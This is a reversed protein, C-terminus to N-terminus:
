QFEFACVAQTGSGAICDVQGTYVAGTDQSWAAGAGFPMNSTTATAGLKCYVRDTNAESAKFGYAKRSANSALVTVNASVSTCTGTVSASAVTRPTETVSATGAIYTTGFGGDGANTNVTGVVYTTSYGGDGGGGGSSGSCGNVCDVQLAGGSATSVKAKTTLKPDQVVVPSQTLLLALLLTM